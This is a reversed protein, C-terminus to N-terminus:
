QIIKLGSPLCIYEASPPTPAGPRTVTQSTAVPFAARDNSAWLPETIARANM